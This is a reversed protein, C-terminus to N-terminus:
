YINPWKFGKPPNGDLYVFVSALTLCLNFGPIFTCVTFFPKPLHPIGRVCFKITFYSVVVSLVYFLTFMM